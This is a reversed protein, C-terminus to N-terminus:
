DVMPESADSQRLTVIKVQDRLDAEVLNKLGIEYILIEAQQVQTDIYERIDAGDENLHHLTPYMLLLHRVEVEQQKPSEATTRSLPQLIHYGYKSVFPPSVENETITFSLYDFPYVTQERGFTYRGDATPAESDQSYQIIIDGFNEGALIESNITNIKNRLEQEESALHALMIKQPIITKVARRMLSAVSEQRYSQYYSVLQNVEDSHIDIGNVSMIVRSHIFASEPQAQQALLSILATAFIM